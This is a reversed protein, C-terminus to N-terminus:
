AFGLALLQSLIDDVLGPTYGEFHEALGDDALETVLSGLDDFSFSM